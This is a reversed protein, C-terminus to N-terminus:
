LVSRLVAEAVAPNVADGDLEIGWVDDAGALLDLVSLRTM